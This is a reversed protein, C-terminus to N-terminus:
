TFHNYAVDFLVSPPKDKSVSYKKSSLMDSKNKWATESHYNSPGPNKGGMKDVKKKAEIEIDDSPMHRPSCLFRGYNKSPFKKEWDELM